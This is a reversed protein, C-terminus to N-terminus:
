GEADPYGALVMELTVQNFEKQARYEKILPRAKDYMKAELYNAILELTGEGFRPFHATLLELHKRAEDPKDMMKLVLGRYYDLFPDTGVAQDLQDINQIAKDYEKRIINADLLMLNINPQDPFDRQYNDLAEIYAENSMKSAIQVASFQIMKDQKIALPLEDLYKKAETYEGQQMLKKLERISGLVEKAKQDTLAQDMLTGMLDSMVSSFYDGIVYIYMDAIYIKGKRKTLEMDHYNIGDDSYLRFLLHQIKDKEYHRVLEYFGSKGVSSAIQNGLNASKLGSSIGDVFDKNLKMHGHRSIRESLIQADLLSNFKEPQENKIFLEIQRATSKAEDQSVPEDKPKCSFISFVLLYALLTIRTPM